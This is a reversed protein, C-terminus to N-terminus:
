AFHRGFLYLAAITLAEVIVILIFVPTLRREAPEADPPTVDATYRALLTM